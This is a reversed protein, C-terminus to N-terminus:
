PKREPAPHPTTALFSARTLGGGGFRARIRDVAADLSPTAGPSAAFLDTQPPKRLASAAIGLLRVAAGPQSSQWEEFLDTAMSLIAATDATAPDFARQRTYTTFDTRRIKVSVCGAVLKQARLRSATRDALRTLETRIVAADRLDKAYTEEAGISKEDREAVVPRNDIGAARARMNLGDKGFLRWLLAADACRLDACCRIGAAHVRPATKPGIGPLREVALADLIERVKAADVQLFGDPKSLDSAIKAVLKNPALGVSASLGLEARIRRKIDTAIQAADGLLRQSATVDLFAEDLSLGEVLPTFNQFIAFVQTSVQKYRAMRPPVCIAQPCLRMAERTPMASRVGFRRVEYSAAAVVGRAGAGGVFVPKGALEPRDLQEVSAYFADMDVHLIARELGSV